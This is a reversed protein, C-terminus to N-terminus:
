FPIEDDDFQSSRIRQTWTRLKHLQTLQNPLEGYALGAFHDHEALPPPHEPECV